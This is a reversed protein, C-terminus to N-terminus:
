IASCPWLWAPEMSNPITKPWSGPLASRETAEGPRQLSPRRAAPRGAAGKAQQAPEQKGSHVQRQRTPPEEAAKKPGTRGARSSNRLADWTARAEIATPRKINLLQRVEREAGKRDNQFIAGKTRGAMLRLPWAIPSSIRGNRELLLRPKRMKQLALLLELLLQQQSAHSQRQSIRRLLNVQKFRKKKGRLSDAGALASARQGAGGAPRCAALALLLASGWVLPGPPRRVIGGVTLAPLWTSFKTKGRSAAAQPRGLNRVPGIPQGGECADVM